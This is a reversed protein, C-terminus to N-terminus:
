VIRHWRNIVLVPQMKSIHALQGTLSHSHSGGGGQAAHTHTHNLTLQWVSNAASARVGGSTLAAASANSTSIRGSSDTVEYLFNYLSSGNLWKHTYWTHTLGGSGHNHSPWIAANTLSTSDSTANSPTYNITSTNNVSGLTYTSGASIHTYWNNELEWTGPWGASSPNFSGDSTEYYSGVPYLLNIIAATTVNAVGNSVVSTGGVQIDTITGTATTYGSTTDQLAYTNGNYEIKDITYEAM